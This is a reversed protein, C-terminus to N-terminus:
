DTLMTSHWGRSTHLPVYLVCWRTLRVGGDRYRECPGLLCLGRASAWSQIRAGIAVASIAALILMPVLLPMPIFM